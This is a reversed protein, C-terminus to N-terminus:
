AIGGFPQLKGCATIVTNQLDRSCQGIQVSLLRDAADMHRFGHRITDRTLPQRCRSSGHHKRVKDSSNPPMSGSHKGKQSLRIRFCSRFRMAHIRDFARPESFQYAALPAPPM